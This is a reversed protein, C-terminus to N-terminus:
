RPREQRNLHNFVVSGSQCMSATGHLPTWAMLAMGFVRQGILTRVTHEILHPDREDIFCAALRDILGLAEDMRAGWSCRGPM